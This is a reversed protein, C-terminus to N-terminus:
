KHPITVNLGKLGLKNAGGIAGALHESSVKFAFYKYNLKLHQFAANNIIPSFSHSIPNGIVGVVKTEGDIIM